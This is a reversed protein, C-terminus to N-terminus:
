GARCSATSSAKVRKWAQNLNAASAVREMLDQTLARQRDSATFAQPEVQAGAGTGGDGPGGHRLAEKLAEDFLDMQDAGGQRREVSM